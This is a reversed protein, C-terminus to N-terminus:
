KIYKQLFDSDEKLAEEVTKTYYSKRTDTLEDYSDAMRLYEVLGFDDNIHGYQDVFKSIKTSDKIAEIQIDNASFSKEGVTLKGKNYLMSEIKVLQEKALDEDLLETHILQGHEEDPVTLKILVYEPLKPEEAYLGLEILLKKTQFEFQKGGADIIMKDHDIFSVEADDLLSKIKSM